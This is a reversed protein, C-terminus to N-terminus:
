PAGPMGTPKLRYVVVPNTTQNPRAFTKVIEAVASFPHTPTFADRSDLNLPLRAGFTDALIKGYIVIREILTSAHHNPALGLEHSYFAIHNAMIEQRDILYIVGRARLYGLLDRKEMEPVIEHNLKGDINLVVHGSYYQLLGSNKAGILADPPLNDRAWLAAQYITPQTQEPEALKTRYFGIAEGTNLAVIVGATGLLALAAARGPRRRWLEAGLWALLIILVASLGVFYRERAQQLVYGYYLPPVPLYLLLPLAALLRRGLAWALLAGFALALLALVWPAPVWDLDIASTQALANLGNTLHFDGREAPTFGPGYSHLYALARGSSPGLSGSVAYNFAFYPALFILTAAVYLGIASWQGGVVSWRGIRHAPSRTFPHAPSPTLPHRNEDNQPERNQPETTRHNETRGNETRPEQAARLGMTLTIAAFALCADLRALTALSTLLALALIHSVRSLDLRYFAVFLTLLLLLGLSTEMANVSVRVLYPNLAFLAVALLGAVEGGFRRALWWLPWIALTSLLACIVLNATFGIDLAGPAALYPLAGLTLPYLPQFGTTPNVGDATIGRGLAFNRAIATVMWADDELVVLHISLPLLAFALRLALGVTALMWVARRLSLAFAQARTGKATLSVSMTKLIGWFWLVLPM